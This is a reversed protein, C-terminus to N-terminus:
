GPLARTRAAVERELMSLPMAGDRLIEHFEALNFRGGLGHKATERACGGIIGVNYSCARGPMGGCSRSRRAFAREPFCHSRSSLRNRATDVM